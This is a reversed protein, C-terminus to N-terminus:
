NMNLVSWCYVGVSGVEEDEEGTFYDLDEVFKESEAYECFTM